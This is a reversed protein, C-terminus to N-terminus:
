QILSLPEAYQVTSSIIYLELTVRLRLSYCRGAVANKKLMPNPSVIKLPLAPWFLEQGDKTESDHHVSVWVPNM